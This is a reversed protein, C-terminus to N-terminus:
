QGARRDRAVASVQDLDSTIKALRADFMRAMEPSFVETDELVRMLAGAVHASVNSDHYHARAEEDDDAMEGCRQAAVADLVFHSIWDEIEERTKM